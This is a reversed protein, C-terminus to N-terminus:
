KRSKKSPAREKNDSDNDSDNSSTEDKKDDGKTSEKPEMDEIYKDIFDLCQDRIERNTVLMVVLGDSGVEYKLEGENPYAVKEDFIDFFQNMGTFTSINSLFREHLEGDPIEKSQVVLTIRFDNELEDQEPVPYDEKNSAM